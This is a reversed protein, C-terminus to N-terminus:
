FIFPVQFMQFTSYLFMTVMSIFFIVKILNRKVITTMSGLFLVIAFIVTVLTQKDGLNNYNQGETFIDNGKTMLKNAYRNLNDIYNQYNYFVVREKYPNKENEKDAWDIAQILEFPVVEEMQEALAKYRLSMPDSPNQSLAKYENLQMWYMVDESIIQNNYVFESNAANITAVAKNYNENSMGDYLSSEYASFAGFITSIGIILAAIIEILDSYKGFKQELGTKENEVMDM